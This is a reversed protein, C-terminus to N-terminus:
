NSVGRDVEVVAELHTVVDADMNPIWVRERWAVLVVFLTDCLHPVRGDWFSTMGLHLRGVRFRRGCLSRGRASGEPFSRGQSLRM